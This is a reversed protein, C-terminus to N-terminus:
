REDPLDSEEGERARYADIEARTPRYDDFKKGCVACWGGMEVYGTDYRRFGAIIPHSGTAHLIRWWAQRIPNVGKVPPAKRRKSM